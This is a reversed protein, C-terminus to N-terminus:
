TSKPTAVQQRLYMPELQQANITNGAQFEAVALAAVAQASPYGPSLWHEVGLTACAEPYAEQASGTAWTVAAPLAPLHEVPVLADPSLAQLAQTNGNYLGWYMENMRADQAVLVPGSAGEAYAQWASAALSSVGVVPVDLGYALGQAVAVAIRVGTFAGPGYGVAIGTLEGPKVGQEQLLQEVMPLVLETQQRPAVAFLEATDQGPQWLAVSCANTSTELALIKM